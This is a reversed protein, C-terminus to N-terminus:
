AVDDYDLMEIWVVFRFLSESNTLNVTNVAFPCAFKKAQLDKQSINQIWVTALKPSESKLDWRSVIEEYSKWIRDEYSIEM